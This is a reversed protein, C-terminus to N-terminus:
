PKGVFRSIMEREGREDALGPLTAGRRMERDHLDCILISIRVLRTHTHGVKKCPDYTETNTPAGRLRAEGRSNSYPHQAACEKSEATSFEPSSNMAARRTAEQQILTTVGDFTL